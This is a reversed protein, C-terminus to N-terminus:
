LAIKGSICRDLKAPGARKVPLEQYISTITEKFTLPAMVVGWGKQTQFIGDYASDYYSRILHPINRETLISDLIQAEIENELILIRQFQEM